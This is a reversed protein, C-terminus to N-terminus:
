KYKLIKCLVRLQATSYSTKWQNKARCQYMGPDREPDLHQIKLVNDQILFRDRDELPMTLMDMLQGDKFWNYTVDPIGFAECTWTLDGHNDMHKDELPITFNPEAQITLWVQNDISIRENYARCIYEGQDEVRVHPIILIRNYSELRTGRPLPAGRRTWNYSPVPYGFAFCELKVEDGAIPADPFVKPFNIPFKLQQFSSHSNVRLPFFPGNRGTSSALSQVNCSYNGQDIPELASFYLTGDSSAFVRKDQEVFNPFFDRAWNYKVEPPFHQPPDCYIAQGWNQNGQEASRKLNFELIYGFSLDVSESIITGYDNSAKCHYAGRDETQKPNNIILNGGSITYRNNTLPDIRRAVLRADEYDERFWEYNPAPYGGALCSLSVENFIRRISVDFVINKPQKIFFPGRPIRLPDDIELGYKYDRDEETLIHLASIPAECIYLLLEDGTVKELGWRKLSNSFSYALYDRNLVGDYPEPLFANDMSLLQSGDAENAWYGGQQRASTLWRRHQPDKWILQQLIFGHEEVTNISVLDSQYAQCTRRADERQKLPSKVLRYCSEQFKVWHKPCHYEVEGYYLNQGANISILLLLNIALLYIRIM